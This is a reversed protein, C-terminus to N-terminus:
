QGSKLLQEAANNFSRQHGLADNDWVSLTPVTHLVEHLTTIEQEREGNLLTQGFYTIRNSTSFAEANETYEKKTKKDFFQKQNKDVYLESMGLRLEIQSAPITQDGITSGNGKVTVSSGASSANRAADLSKGISKELAKLAKDTVAGSKIAASRSVWNPDKLTGINVKDITCTSTGLGECKTGSPDSNNVPDNGVYSYLDM